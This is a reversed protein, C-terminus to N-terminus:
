QLLKSSLLSSDRVSISNYHVSLLIFSQTLCEAKEDEQGETRKDKETQRDTERQWTNEPSGHGTSCGCPDVLSQLEPISVFAAVHPFTLNRPDM